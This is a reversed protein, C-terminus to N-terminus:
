LPLPLGPLTARLGGPVGGGVASYHRHRFPPIGPPGVLNAALNADNTPNTPGHWRPGARSNRVLAEAAREAMPGKKEM